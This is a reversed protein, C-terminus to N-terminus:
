LARQQIWQAVRRRYWDTPWYTDVCGDTSPSVEGTKPCVTYFTFLLVVCYDAFDHIQCCFLKIFFLPENLKIAAVCFGDEM